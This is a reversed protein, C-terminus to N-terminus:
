PRVNGDLGIAVSGTNIGYSFGLSLTASLIGSADDGPALAVGISCKGKAPVMTGSCRDNAIRFSAENVGSLKAEELTVTVTSRNSITIVGTKGTSGAKVAGLSKSKPASLSVATGVGGVSIDPSAGNYGIAVSGNSFDGPMTPMFIVGFGCKKKPAIAQGTCTDVTQSIAFPSATTVSAIAAAADGKNILTIKKVKSSGTAAVNGFDLSDPAGSLTTLPTPM